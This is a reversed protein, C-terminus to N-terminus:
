PMLELIEILELIMEIRPHVAIADMLQSKTMKAMHAFSHKSYSGWLILPKAYPHM